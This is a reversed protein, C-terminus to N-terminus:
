KPTSSSSPTKNAKFLSRFFKLLGSSKEPKKAARTSAKVKATTPTAPTTQAINKAGSKLTNTDGVKAPAQEPAASQDQAAPTAATRDQKSASLPTSTLDAAPNATKNENQPLLSILKEEPPPPTSKRDKLFGGGPLGVPKQMEIATAIQRYAAQLAALPKEKGAIALSLASGMATWVVGMEPINPMAVGYKASTMFPRLHPDKIENLVDIRAPGRPDAVYLQHIGQKTVLYNEIFEQALEKNPSSRRILFGHSGVFPRMTQGKLSPLPAVGYPINKKQLEAQLWPGNITMALKGELMKNMAVNYDTSAPCIKKQVLSVIFELGSVAGPNAVGIKDPNLTGNHDGFIFGGGASLFGYSFYLTGLDYLFGYQDKQPNTLNAAQHVLDEWTKPPTKILNKNYILAVSEVAYPYGYIAGQYTFAHAAVPLLNQRYDTNFRVKEILGSSALEGVVDHAWVLIDPGKSALAATKFQGVLDKNLVNVEVKAKFDKEFAPALQQIAKQVTEASTWITLTTPTAAQGWFPCWLLFWPWYRLPRLSNFIQKM